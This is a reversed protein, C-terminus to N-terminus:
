TSNSITWQFFVLPALAGRQTNRPKTAIHTILTKWLRSVRLWAIAVLAAFRNEDAPFRQCGSASLFHWQSVPYPDPGLIKLLRETYIISRLPRKEFDRKERLLQFIIRCMRRAVILIASNAKKGRARHQKYLAGFYPSCGVAVWSAEVLAWRLWKNCFYLLSGHSVKGGSSKTTPVVGAYACLKEASAFRAIEDIECAIVAALTVGIGPVSKLRRHMAEEAFEHAIRKEQAKMQQTILEHLVLQEKLLTADPEPLEVRRLFSLARRGFIDSCQPLELHRQRDLLAHVRNRLMTRLRAWYLRQRLLNKRARTAQSPVHARAVLNGRLLTGLAHADLRDTKIQAEAILRTKHPHALIVEEVQELEELEDHILGWNWCAEVVAKSPGELGAFFKAFGSAENGEVRGERLKRGSEDLACLVSYKKHIDVGVYNM